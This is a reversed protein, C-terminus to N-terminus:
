RRARIQPRQEGIKRPLSETRTGAYDSLQDNSLSKDRFLKKAAGRLQEAPMEGKRAALAAGFASQQAKSTAPM